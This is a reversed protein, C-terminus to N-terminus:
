NIPVGGVINFIFFFSRNTHATPLLTGATAQWGEGEVRTM